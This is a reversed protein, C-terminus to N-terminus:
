VFVADGADGRVRKIALMGAIDAEALVPPWKPLNAPHWLHQPHQCARISICFHQPAQSLSANKSPWGLIATPCTQPLHGADPHHNACLYPGYGHIPPYKRQTIWAHTPGSISSRWTMRLTMPTRKPQKPLLIFPAPKGPQKSM